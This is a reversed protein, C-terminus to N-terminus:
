GGGGLQAVRGAGAASGCGGGGRTPASRVPSLPRLPCRPSATLFFGDFLRRCFDELAFEDALLALNGTLLHLFIDGFALDGFTEVALVAWTLGARGTLGAGPTHRCALVLSGCLGPPRPLPRVPARAYTTFCVVTHPGPWAPCSLGDGTATVRPWAGRGLGRAQGSPQNQSLSVVGSLSKM